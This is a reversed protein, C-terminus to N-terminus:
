QGKEKLVAKVAEWLADCLEAYDYEDNSFITKIKWGQKPVFITEKDHTIEEQICYPMIHCIYIGLFEIMKGITILEIIEEELMRIRYTKENMYMIAVEEHKCFTEILRDFGIQQAQKRSIHQKM